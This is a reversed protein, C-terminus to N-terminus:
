RKEWQVIENKQGRMTKDMLYKKIIPPMSGRFNNCELDM